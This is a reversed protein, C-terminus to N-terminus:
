PFTPGPHVGLAVAIGFVCVSLGCGYRTVNRNIAFYDAIVSGETEVAERRFGSPLAGFVRRASSRGAAERRARVAAFRQYSEPM